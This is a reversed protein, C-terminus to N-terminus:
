QFAPLNLLLRQLIPPFLNQIPSISKSEGEGIKELRINVNYEEGEYVPDITSVGRKYGIKTVEFRLGYKPVFIYDLFNGKVTCKGNIKSTDGALKMGFFQECVDCSAGWIKTVGEESTITFNITIEEDDDLLTISEKSESAKPILITSSASISCLVTTLMITVM